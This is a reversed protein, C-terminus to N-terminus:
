NIDVYFRFYLSIGDAWDSNASSLVVASGAVNIYVMQFTTSTRPVIIGTRLGPANWGYLATSPIANNILTAVTSSTSKPISAGFEIGTPLSFLYTGSGGSTSNSQAYKYEVEFTTSNVRRYRDIDQVITGKTPATTTAGITITGADVWNNGVLSSATTAWSASVANAFITTPPTVVTWFQGNYQYVASSGSQYTQNLSASSPFVLAM